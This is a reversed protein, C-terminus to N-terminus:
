KSPRRRKGPSITPTVCYISWPFVGALMAPEGDFLVQTGALSTPLPVTYGLDVALDPQFGSLTITALEGPGIPGDRGSYSNGAGTIALPNSPVPGIHALLGTSSTLLTPPNPHTFPPPPPLSTGGVGAGGARAL